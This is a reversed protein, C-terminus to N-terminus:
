AEIDGARLTMLYMKCLLLAWGGFIFALIKLFISIWRASAGVLKSTSEILIASHGEIALERSMLSAKSQFIRIRNRAQEVLVTDRTKELRALEILPDRLHRIWYDRKLHACAALRVPWSGTKVTNQSNQKFVIEVSLRPPALGSFGKVHVKEVVPQVFPPTQIVLQSLEVISDSYALLQNLVGINEDFEPLIVSYLSDFPEGIFECDVSRHIPSSDSLTSEKKEAFYTAAKFCAYALSGLILLGSWIAVKDKM